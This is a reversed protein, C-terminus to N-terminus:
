GVHVSTLDSSFLIYNLMKLMNNQPKTCILTYRINYVSKANNLAKCIFVPIGECCDGILLGSVSSAGFTPRLLHVM